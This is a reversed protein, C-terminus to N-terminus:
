ELNGTRNGAQPPPPDCPDKLGGPLHRSLVVFYAVVMEWYM